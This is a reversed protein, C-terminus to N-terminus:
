PQYLEDCKVCKEQSIMITHQQKDGPSLVPILPPSHVDYFTYLHTQKDCDYFSLKHKECDLFVGLKSFQDRVLVPTQSPDNVYYGKEKEYHLVWYGNQPTLPVKRRKEATENTVGVYWSSSCKYSKGNKSTHPEIMVTIEWYYRGSSIREECLVHIFATKDNLDSTCMVRSKKKGVDLSPVTPTVPRIAVKCALMKEWDPIEKRKETNTEKDKKESVPTQTAGDTRSIERLASVPHPPTFEGVLRTQEEVLHTQEEKTASKPNKPLIHDRIKPIIFIAMVTFVLLSIVLLIIFAKWGPSVGPELTSDSDSVSDTKYVPKLPLVRGEKMEQDSLGVSCSIWESESPSFLLWSSVSVLGESDTNHCVSNRLEKGRKDRWILTPNPSWGDSVCTVNVQEGTESLSFLLPSGVVTINLIVSGREYWETSKVFCVYEGRDALTLNELKLSVNGKQLEGILSVRGRYQPDGINEQVKLDKYLLIPNEKKNPRHWRVEYSKIDLATSLGCPLVVSSGIQASIFGDPVLLSFTGAVSCSKNNSLIWLVLVATRLTGLAMTRLDTFLPQFFGRLYRNVNIM